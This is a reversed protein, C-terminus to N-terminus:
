YDVGQIGSFSSDIECEEILDDVCSDVAYQFEIEYKSCDNDWYDSYNFDSLDDISCHLRKNVKKNVAILFNNFTLKM